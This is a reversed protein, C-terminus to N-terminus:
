PSLLNIYTFRAFYKENSTLETFDLGKYTFDLGKKTLRPVETFLTYM